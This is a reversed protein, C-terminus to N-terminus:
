EEDESEYSYLIEGIAKDDIMVSLISYYYDGNGNDAELNAKSVENQNHFLVLTAERHTEYDNDVVQKEDILTVDTIMGDFSVNEWSGSAFACCDQETCEFAIQKGDELTIRKGNTGVIRKYLVAEKLKALTEKQYNNM